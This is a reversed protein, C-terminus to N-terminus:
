QLILNFKGDVQYTEGIVMSVKTKGYRKAIKTVQGMLRPLDEFKYGHVKFVLDSMGVTSKLLVTKLAKGLVAGCPIGMSITTWM